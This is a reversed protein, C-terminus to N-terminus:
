SSVDPPTEDYNDVGFPVDGDRTNVAVITNVIRSTEGANLVSMLQRAEDESMAPDVVCLAMAAPPFTATSFALKGEPDSHANLLEQWRPGGVARITFVHAKARIQRDLDALEEAVRAKESPAGLSEKTDDAVAWRQHVERRKSLLKGDLCVRLQEEAFSAEGLLDSISTM